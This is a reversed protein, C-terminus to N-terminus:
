RVIVSFGKGGWFPFIWQTGFLNSSTSLGAPLPDGPYADTYKKRQEDTLDDWKTMREPDEIFEAWDNCATSVRVKGYAPVELFSNVAGDLQGYFTMSKVKTCQWFTYTSLKSVRRGLTISDISCGRFHYDWKNSPVIQVSRGSGGIVLDGKLKSCQNFACLYIRQVSDPLFPEVCVLNSCSDFASSGISTLTTLPFKVEVLQACAKFASDGLAVIPLGSSTPKSLDLVGPPMLFTPGSAITYGDTGSIKLTWYGDTMTKGDEAVQWTTRFVPAFDRAADMTMTLTPKEADSSPVEGYWRVFPAAGSAAFTVISNSPWYETEIPTSASTATVTCGISTGDFALVSPVRYGVEEWNWVLKYNGAETPAFSYTTASKTEVEQWAGDDFKFLTCSTCKRLIKEGKDSSVTAECAVPLEDATYEVPEESYTPTVEGYETGNAAVILSYSDAAGGEAVLWVNKLGKRTSLGVPETGDAFTYKKQTAEDLDGWATVYSSKLFAGWNEDTAPFVVRVSHDESLGVSVSSATLNASTTYDSSFPFGNCHIDKLLPCSQFASSSITTLGKGFTIKVLASDGQFAYNGIKTVTDPLVCETISTSKMSAQGIETLTFGDTESLDVVTGTGVTTVSRTSVASSKSTNAQLVWGTESETISGYSNVKTITWKAQATVAFGCIMAVVAAFKLACKKMTLTKRERLSFYCDLQAYKVM